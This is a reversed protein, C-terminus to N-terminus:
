FFVNIITQLIIMKNYLQLFFQGALPPSMRRFIENAPLSSFQALIIEAYLLPVGVCIYSTLYPILFTGLNNKFLKIKTYIINKYLKILM